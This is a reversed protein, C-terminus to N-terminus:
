EVLEDAIKGITESNRITGTFPNPFNMAHILETDARDKLDVSGDLGVFNLVVAEKDVRPKPPQQQARTFM